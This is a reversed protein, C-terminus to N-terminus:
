DSSVEVINIGADTILKTAVNVDGFIELGYGCGLAQMSTTVRKVYSRIGNQELIRQARIAYTVSSLRIVAKSM